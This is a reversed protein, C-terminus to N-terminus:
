RRNNNRGANMERKSYSWVIDLAIHGKAILGALYGYNAAVYEIARADHLFHRHKVSFLKQYDIGVNVGHDLIQHVYEYEQYKVGFFHMDFLCHEHLNPIIIVEM